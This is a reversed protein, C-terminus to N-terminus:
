LVFFDANTLALGPAIVAFELAVGAGNGDADFFLKGTDTEYIIRDAVHTALGSTNANGTAKATYGGPQLTAILM